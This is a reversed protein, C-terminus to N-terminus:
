AVRMRTLFQEVEARLGDSRSALAAASSLVMQAVHGTRTAARSAEEVSKAVEQTGDAAAGAADAIEQTVSGQQEVATAVANAIADLRTITETITNMALVAQATTDDVSALQRTIEETAKGTQAALGKVEHAVVAFGRGAVGARAAEITANLALLNTQAAINRILESVDGIRGVSAALGAVANTVLQAEGAAQRAIAASDRVQRSIQEVSRAIEGAAAAVSKVNATAEESAAAATVAQAQSQGATQTMERASRDMTQSAEGFASIIESVTLEFQATAADVESRQAESRVAREAESERATALDAIAKRFIALSRAMESIEDQGGAPIVVDREGAAIRRMIDGLLGLRRAINRGVYLWAISAAAVLAALSLVTLLIRASSIQEAARSSLSRALQEQRDVLRDVAMKLAAADAQSAAFADQAENQRRLERARLDVIGDPELGTALPEYLAALERAAALDGLQKLDREIKDYSSQVLDRLPQLRVSDTVLSSEILRGTLLNAESRVELLLRLKEILVASAGATGATMLDFNADDIPPVLGELFREHATRISGALVQRQQTVALRATVAQDLAHLQNILTREAAEIEGGMDPDLLKVRAIRAQLREAQTSMDRSMTSRAAESDAAILSPAAAVLGMTEESLRLSQNTAPLSSSAIQTMTAGIDTFAYLAFGSGAVTLAAALGFALYLRSKISALQARLGGAARRLTPHVVM